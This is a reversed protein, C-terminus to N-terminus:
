QAVNIMNGGSHASIQPAYQSQASAIGSTFTGSNNAWVEYTLIYTGKPMYTVFMNTSADRNERYFCVGESYIPKPLQEVPEFCAAREDDITIYELDRNAKVTLQIRIRDGLKYDKAVSWSTGDQRLFTKEVSLAECGSPSVETMIENYRCYVAGWAPTHAAKTISLCSASVSDSPLATRIYGLLKDTDSIDLKTSGITIESKGTEEIWSPSTMVIAAIVNNAVSSAGWNRTEKQLILWQRIRDIQISGPSVYYYAMLADATTQLQYMTGGYVDGVSPWWMGQEPKYVAYEDLSSLIKKAQNGYGHNKLLLACRAKDDVPMKKWGSLSKQIVSAIIKNGTTSPEYEPWLDRLYVYSSYDQRPYRRYDKEVCTQHYALAQRIMKKLKQNDPLFGMRNLKGLTMLVSYTAWQSAENSQRLWAWGGENQQLDSLLAISKDYVNRINKEDLILVLRQMRETDNKADLLWPTAQILIKKLDSNRELMSVLTSDSTNGSTWEKLAKRIVPYESLLGDAVAATFIAEAAQQSTKLEEANIGPLATIVYWAPNNCYELTTNSGTKVEPLKMTFALTDPSIYFPYTDIVPSISSLVPILTQEGDTFRGNGAKIRYGIFPMDLGAKVNIMVPINGGAPVNVVTDTATIISNDSPNFLEMNVSIDEDQSENNFVLAKLIAIDGVRLFRPLNPQVMVPKNALVASVYGATEVDQNYAIANFAWTTNANPVRFTFELRGDADTTLTPNFFALAVENERYSFDQEPETGAAKSEAEAVGTDIGFAVDLLSPEASDEAVEEEVEALDHAGETKVATTNMVMASKYMPSRVGRIHIGSNYFQRGYTNLQPTVLSNCTLFRLHTENIYHVENDYQSLRINFQPVFTNIPSFKRTQTHLADLASNYMSLIMASAQGHGDKGITRFTWTEETGPIVKNRFSEAVLVFKNDTEPSKVSIAAVSSIKNFVSMLTVKAETVNEPLIVPLHHMGAPMDIWKQEIIKSNDTLTYLIHSEPAVTAFLIDCERHKGTTVSKGDLPTWLPRDVPSKKDVPRYLCINTLTISDAILEPTSMVLRYEGSPVSTFDVVPSPAKLNLTNILTDHSYIDCKVQASVSSDASNLIRLNLKVPNTVDINQPLAAEIRHANGVTFSRSINRSEGSQSTATLRATFIGDPAPSNELVDKGIIISFNGNSDTTVTDTYFKVDNNRFFFSFESASLQMDVPVDALGMGSYTRARGTLTVAGAEPVGTQVTLVEIYYTPLKYDSVMFFVSGYNDFKIRYNGTLENEPLLFEGSIRGFDDSVCDLTDIAQYNANYLIASIKKGNVLNHTNRTSRYAVGVWKVTDGPRYLALDTEGFVNFQSEMNDSSTWIWEPISYRDNGKQVLMLDNIGDNRVFGDKDSIGLTKITTARGRSHQYKVDANEVPQGTFPNIILIRNDNFSVSNLALHTCHIKRYSSHRNNETPLPIQPSDIVAIYNGYEPIIVSVVTDLTFPVTGSFTVVKEVTKKLNGALIKTKINYYREFPSESDPVRFVTVTAKSVNAGSIRIDTKEGPAVLEDVSMVLRPREIKSIYNKICNIQHYAPFKIVFDKFLGYYHELPINEALAILIDGSFESGSYKDYLEKLIKEKRQDAKDSLNWYLGDSIFDIRDLETRIFPAPDDAHFKLLDAYTDLIKQAEKSSPVYRPSMIFIRAPTFVTLPFVNSFQSLQSRISISTTAVFDYLTPFYIQAEHTLDIVSSYEAIPTEKLVEHANLAESCLGSIVERFQEGSWERFNSPLPSIPIERTDYKYKDANYINLYIRAMLIDLMSKVCGDSETLRVDNIKEIVAPLNDNSIASQALAYDILSRVVLKGDSNKLAKKLNSEATASVKKPFAFDPVPVSTKANLMISMILGILSITIYKLDVSKM